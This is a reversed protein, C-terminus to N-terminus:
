VNVVRNLTLLEGAQTRLVIQVYITDLAFATRVSDVSQVVDATAFRSRTGALADRAIDTSQVYIYNALVRQVEAEVLMQTTADVPQGVYAPLYSGWAPHFRDNGFPEALALNLETTIKATGSVTAHGTSSVVLDGDKLALTKVLVEM